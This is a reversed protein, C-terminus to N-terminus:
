VQQRTHHWKGCYLCQYPRNGLTDAIEKAERESWKVKGSQQCKARKKRRLEKVARTAM